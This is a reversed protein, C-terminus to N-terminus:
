AIRTVPAFWPPPFARGYGVNGSVRPDTSFISRELSFGTSMDSGTGYGGAASGAVFSLSGTFDHNQKKPPFLLITLSACFPAIRLRACRGSGTMTMPPLQAGPRTAHRGAAHEPHRQCQSQRRSASGLKERLAPLFSPATVKLTYLGPLLGTATYYGAEDTFVTFTRNAAGLIQVIAGM